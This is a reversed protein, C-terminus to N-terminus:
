KKVKKCASSKTCGKGGSSKKHKYENYTEILQKNLDSKLWMSRASPKRKTTTKIVPQINYMGRQNRRLEWEVQSHTNGMM